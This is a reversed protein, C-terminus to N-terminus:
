KTNNMNIKNELLKIMLDPYEYIKLIIDKDIAYSIWGIKILEYAIDTLGRSLAAAFATKKHEVNYLNLIHGNEKNLDIHAIIDDIAGDFIQEILQTNNLRRDEIVRKEIHKLKLGAKVYKNNRLICNYEKITTANKIEM